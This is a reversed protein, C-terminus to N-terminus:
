KNLDYILSNWVEITQPNMILRRDILSKITAEYCLLIAEDLNNTEDLKKIIKKRFEKNRTYPEIKDALFVIKELDSMNIKGITHWRVANLIEIDNIGLEKQVLYASVPAHLTKVSAKEIESVPLNNENIIKLLEDVSLCKACDHILAAFAAKEEDIKFRKALERATEESGLSHSYRQQTLKEKIWEKANNIMNKM